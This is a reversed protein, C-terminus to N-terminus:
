LLNLDLDLCEFLVVVSINEMNEDNKSSRVEKSCTRQVIHRVGRKYEIGTGNFCGIGGIM